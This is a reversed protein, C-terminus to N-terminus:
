DIGETETRLVTTIDFELGGISNFDAIDTGVAAVVAAKTDTDYFIGRTIAAVQFHNCRRDDDIAAEDAGLRAAKAVCAVDGDFGIAEADVVATLYGRDGKAQAITTVGVDGGSM